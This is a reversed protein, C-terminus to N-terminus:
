FTELARGTQRSRKHDKQKREFSRWIKKGVRYWREARERKKVEENLKLYNEEGDLLVISALLEKKIM